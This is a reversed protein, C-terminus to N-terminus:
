QKNCWEDAAAEAMGARSFRRAHDLDDGSYFHTTFPLHPVALSSTVIAVRNTRDDTQTYIVQDSM